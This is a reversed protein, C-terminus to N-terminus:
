LAPPYPLLLACPLIMSHDSPVPNCHVSSLFSPEGPRSAAFRALHLRNCLYSPPLCFSCTPLCTEVALWSCCLCCLLRTDVVSRHKLFSGQAHLRVSSISSSVVHRVGLLGRRDRSAWCRVCARSTWSTDRCVPPSGCEPVPVFFGGREEGSFRVCRKERERRQPAAAAPEPKRQTLHHLM